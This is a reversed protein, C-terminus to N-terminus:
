TNGNKASEIYKGLEKFCDQRYKFDMDSKKSSYEKYDNATLLDIFYSKTGESLTSEKIIAAPSKGSQKILPTMWQVFDSIVFQGKKFSSPIDKQPKWMPFKNLKVMWALSLLVALITLSLNVLPIWNKWTSSSTVIPGSLELAQTPTVQPTPSKNRSPGPTQDDQTRSKQGGGAITIAPIQLKTPVYSETAPDFYSLTIDTAPLEINDKALYTYDFVKTAQDANTIKLDGNSEFKELSPSNILEPGELNELAGVGSVTLKAELPENVILKNKGFQLQFEHKGVLGTFHAPAPQPLPLVDLSITESNINRTRFDRNIGFSGFPDGVSSRPYTVSMQLGDVKLTGTKEAYLKAAYIQTRMYLQGDVSVRETREPEQLFRKLFGNLKPYGKIDLNTVPVKSYLYYRVVVGEGVYLRKKPVDAMVFVEQLAQAEKLIELNLTQHRLNVSGLQVNISNVSAHGPKSAVLDYVVTVERTVTLNGNAYVTRTSVGQNAKGVVEVNYPSFNIVPEEDSQTFIRFYVQFVEDVVPKKPNVEIRVENALAFQTLLLTIIFIMWRM